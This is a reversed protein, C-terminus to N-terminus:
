EKEVSLRATAKTDTTNINGTLYKYYGVIGIM